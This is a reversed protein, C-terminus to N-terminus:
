ALAPCGPRHEEGPVSDGYKVSKGVGRPGSATDSLPCGATRHRQTIGCHRGHAGHNLSNKSLQDALERFQRDAAAETLHRSFDKLYFIAQVSLGSLHQLLALPAATMRNIAVADGVRTLGRTVSWEFLPITLQAAVALLLPLVRDEEVTEIVLIPHFSLVLTKIDHVSTSISM